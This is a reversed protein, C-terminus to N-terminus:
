TVAGDFFENNDVLRYSLNTYVNYGTGLNFVLQTDTISVITDAYLMVEQRDGNADEYWFVMYCTGYRPRLKTGTVTLDTGDYVVSTVRTLYQSISYEYAYDHRSLKVLDYMITGLRTSNYRNYKGPGMVKYRDMSDLDVVMDNINLKPYPYGIFTTREVEIHNEVGNEQGSVNFPGFLGKFIIPTHYGGVWGTGYCTTCRPNQPEGTQSLCAPCPTGSRRKPVYAVRHGAGVIAKLFNSEFWRRYKLWNTRDNSTIQEVTEELKVNSANYGEIKMYIDATVREKYIAINSYFLNSTQALLTYDEPTLGHYVKFYVVSANDCTWSLNITFPELIDTATIVIM